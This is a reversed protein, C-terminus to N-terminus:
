VYAALTTEVMAASTFKNLFRARGAAGFRERMVGSGLTDLLARALGEHDRPACLRGTEGEVVADPIGGARTAVVPRSFCMADLVSTGLGELHSSLCFIDFSPILADLDGRFGAFVVRPSVGLSGALAALESRLPGEGCILFWCDPRAKLVIAASHLLTAHDKHDVLQAVNGVVPMGEPIGLSRLVQAGGPLPPRDRVGEHVLVVRDPRLGDRILVDRVAGSVALIRDMRGYKLRSFFRLPFDVRRSAVLRPRRAMGRALLISGFLGHSEHVHIVDPTFANAAERLAALTRLSLDGRGVRAARVPLSAKAARALLEGRANAFILADHGRAIQGEATVVIQNQGGRWETATDVHLIKM